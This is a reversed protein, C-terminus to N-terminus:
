KEADKIQIALHQKAALETQGTGLTNGPQWPDIWAVWQSTATDYHTRITRSQHM